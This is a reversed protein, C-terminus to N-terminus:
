TSIKSMRIYIANMENPKGSETKPAAQGDINLVNLIGSPEAPMIVISIYQPVIIELMALSLIIRLSPVPYTNTSDTASVAM